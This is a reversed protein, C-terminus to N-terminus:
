QGNELSHKKRWRNETSQVQTKLAWSLFRSVKRLGQVSNVVTLKPEGLAENEGEEQHKSKDWATWTDAEEMQSLVCSHLTMDWECGQGLEGGKYKQLPFFIIRRCCAESQCRSSQQSADLREQGLPSSCIDLSIQLKPALQQLCGKCRLFGKFLEM